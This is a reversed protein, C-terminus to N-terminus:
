SKILEAAIKVLVSELREYGAETFKKLITKSKEEPEDSSEIELREEMYKVAYPTLLANDLRVSNIGYPRMGGKIFDVNHIYGENELKLIAVNFTDRDMGGDIFKRQVNNLNPVDKQYELFLATFIERKTDIIM